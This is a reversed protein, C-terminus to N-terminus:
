RSSASDINARIPAFLSKAFTLSNSLPREVGQDLQLSVKRFQMVRQRCKRVRAIVVVQARQHKPILDLKQPLM